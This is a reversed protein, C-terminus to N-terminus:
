DPEQGNGWGARVQADLNLCLPNSLTSLPTWSTRKERSMTQQKGLGSHGEEKGWSGRFAGGVVGWIRDKIVKGADIKQAWMM